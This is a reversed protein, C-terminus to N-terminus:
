KSHSLLWSYFRPNAYTKTWSDHTADPYITLKARKNGCRQLAEIMDVSRKIPIVSDRAGHFAWVPTNNLKCVTQVEGGGCIPAVAAFEAPYQSALAWTGFGGMSLGTLYIRSQDVRYGAKILQIIKYIKDNKKPWWIDKPCQPALVIFNTNFKNEKILRPPGHLELLNLDSGREGAGHLFVLLPWMRNKQSKYEKPLYLKYGLNQNNDRSTNYDQFNSPFFGCASINLLFLAITAFHLTSSFNLICSM